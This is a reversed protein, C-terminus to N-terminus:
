AARQESSRSWFPRDPWRREGAYLAAHRARYISWVEAMRQGYAGLLAPAGDLTAHVAAAAENGSHLAAFIGQGSIPDFSMAADGCAIWRAGHFSSLRAGGADTAPLTETFQV